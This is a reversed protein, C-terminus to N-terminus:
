LHFVKLALRYKDLKRLSNERNSTFPLTLRLTVLRWFAQALNARKIARITRKTYHKEYFVLEAEFKKKWIEVPKTDRESQGGWHVVVADPIYGITWGAKRARLCLDQEEGYLHFREDFGGLDELLARRAIMSAGLVWAIGTDLGRLEQRARKQGPYRTEVSPQPSGDPNIIRTGALGVNPHSDMFGLIAGLAGQQVETDPNLFYVYKSKCSRLAQNNARAFGLNQKNTILKVQPFESKVIDQSDDNSANDVVIARVRIDGQSGLSNLCRRLFDATNYNVIIVSFDSM